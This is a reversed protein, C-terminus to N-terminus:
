AAEATALRDAVMDTLIDLHVCDLESGTAIDIADRIDHDDAIMDRVVPSRVIRDALDALAM